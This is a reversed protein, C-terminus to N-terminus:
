GMESKTSDLLLATDYSSQAEQHRQLSQLVVARNLWSQSFQPNLEVARDFYALASQPDGLNQAIVGLSFTSVIDRPNDRLLKQFLKAAQQLHGEGQLALARQLLQEPHESATEEPAEEPPTVTFSTPHNGNRQREVMTSFAAELDRCFLHTNFLPFVGRNRQLKERVATLFPQDQALKIALEEYSQLSSTILEPLGIAHLLSGAVRGPFASGTCTLVPLGAYLADSATTHANYPTTDLFLDALRYRALHDEMKPVRTAFIIRGPDVGRAAAEKLLNAEAFRNLRMLWLVSGPTAKLINMWIDFMQPLIKYSHNFSCFIFGSEPLGYQQRTPLRDAIKVTNDSPLYTHPLYAVKETYFQQDAEPIVWRDAIIYDMYDLGMTGPYGLYNVQVPAPRQAFVDPRSGATYGALDIAIDIELSRILQAIDRSSRPRIDIFHDFSAVLRQRFSSNDPSGLSLAFTEFKSKDHNEFVGAMLHAVPHEQLDPSVYAIRIKDHHYREGQWIPAQPPFQHLGFIRAGQLHDSLSSSITLLERAGCIRMGAAIGASIEATLTDLNDWLCITQQVDCLFGPVYNFNPDIQLLRQYTFMAEDFRKLENLIIGRNSLATTNDPAFALLRDYNDLADLRRGMERLIVGRNVYPASERPDLAISRDYSELAEDHRKLAQLIFGRNYWSLAFDPKLKIVKNIYELAQEPNGIKLTIVGLSFLAVFNRPDKKLVQKFIPEAGSFNGEEQLKLANQLKKDSM